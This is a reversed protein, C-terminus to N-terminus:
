GRCARAHRARHPPTNVPLVVVSNNIRAVSLCVFRKAVVCVSFTLYKWYSTTLSHMTRISERRTAAAQSENRFRACEGDIANKASIM